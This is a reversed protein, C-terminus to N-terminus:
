VALEAWVTSVPGVGNQYREVGWKRAVADVIALGRGRVDSPGADRFHPAQSSGGDTVKLVLCGPQVAWAVRLVNGPLPRAYRVANGILESVVLEADDVVAAPVGWEVLDAGLERRAEAASSPTHDVTVMRLVVGDGGSGSPVDPRFPYGRRDPLTVM